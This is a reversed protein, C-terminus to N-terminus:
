LGGSRIDLEDIRTPEVGEDGGPIRRDDDLDVHLSVFRDDQLLHQGSAQGGPDGLDEQLHILAPDIDTPDPRRQRRVPEIPEGPDARAVMVVQQGFPAPSAVTEVPTPQFYTELIM